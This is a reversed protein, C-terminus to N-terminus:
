QPGRWRLRAQGDGGVRRSLQEYSRAAVEPDFYSAPLPFTMHRGAKFEDFHRDFPLLDFLFIQMFVRKSGHAGVSHCNGGYAFTMILNGDRGPLALNGFVDSLLAAACAMTQSLM